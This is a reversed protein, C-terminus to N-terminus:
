SDPQSLEEPVAAVVVVADYEHGNASKWAILRWGKRYGSPSSGLPFHERGDGTWPLVLAIQATTQVGTCIM